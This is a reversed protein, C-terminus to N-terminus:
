INYLDLLYGSFEAYETSTLKRNFTIQCFSEQECAAFATPDGQFYGTGARYEIPGPTGVDTGIQSGNKNSYMNIGERSNDYLEALGPIIQNNVNIFDSAFPGSAKVIYKAAGAGGFNSYYNRIGEDTLLGDAAIFAYVDNDSLYTTVAHVSFFHMDNVIITEPNSLPHSLSTSDILAIVRGDFRQAIEHQLSTTTQTLHYDNGSQDYFISIYGKAVGLFNQISTWSVEGGQPSFGFDKEAQDSDRRVRVCPGVYASRLHFFSYIFQAGTIRDLILDGLAASNVYLNKTIPNDVIGKIIRGGETYSM